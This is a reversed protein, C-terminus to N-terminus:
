SKEENEARALRWGATDEQLVESVVEITTTGDRRHVEVEDGESIGKARIMWEEGVRRWSARPPQSGPKARPKPPADPLEQVREYWTQTGPKGTVAEWLANVTLQSEDVGETLGPGVIAAWGYGSALVTLGARQLHDTLWDQGCRCHRNHHREWRSLQAEYVLRNGYRRGGRVFGSM